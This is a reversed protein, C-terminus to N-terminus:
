VLELADKIKQRMMEWRQLDPQKAFAMVTLRQEDFMGLLGDFKEAIEKEGKETATDRWTAIVRITTDLCALQQSINLSM